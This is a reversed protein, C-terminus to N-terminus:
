IIKDFYKYQFKRGNKCYEYYKLKLLIYIKNYIYHIHNIETKRNLKKEIM